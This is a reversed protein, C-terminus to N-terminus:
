HMLSHKFDPREHSNKLEFLAHRPHFEELQINANFIFKEVTTSVKMELCNFTTMALLGVMGLMVTPDIRGSPQTLEHARSPVEEDTALDALVLMSLGGM